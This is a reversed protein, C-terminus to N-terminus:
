ASRARGREKDIPAVQAARLGDLRKASRDVLGECLRTLPHLLARGCGIDVVRDRPLARGRLDEKRGLALRRRWRGRGRRCGRCGGIDCRRWCRRMAFGRAECRADDDSAGACAM